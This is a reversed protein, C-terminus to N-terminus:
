DMRLQRVSVRVAASRGARRAARRAPYLTALVTLAFRSAIWVIISSMCIPRSRRSTTSTRTWSRSASRYARAVARCTGVNFALLVGLVVGLATGLWGIVVGQTLFVGLVARPTLGLTRLIAIDTRKDTVVMVLTAVINFAAVAVILLLILTMM